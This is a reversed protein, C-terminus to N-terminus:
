PMEESSSFNSNVLGMILVKLLSSRAYRRRLLISCPSCILIWSVFSTLTLICLHSDGHLFIIYSLNTVINIGCWSNLHCNPPKLTKLCVDSYDIAPSILLLIKGGEALETSSECWLFHSAKVAMFASFM